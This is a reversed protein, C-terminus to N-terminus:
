SNKAVRRRPEPDKGKMVHEIGLQRCVKETLDARNLTYFHIHDVGFSLLKRCQDTAVKIAMANQKVPDDGANEFIKGLWDPVSAGCMASFKKAQAFNAIPMLGPVIPIKIGAKTTKEIFRFYHEVDFFYQTIARTAGANVKHKLYDIGAEISEAEPHKEPFAAVSIEFDNIRKLGAVLDAAYRYGKPHPLYAGGGPPDGRLAVIHRVGAQWYGRAIFDIEERSAAICTLHAAPKLRTEQLIREVMAHTRERTSGGAGYTVSVFTPKLPALRLVTDWLKKEMEPTKPPFFEFSVSPYPTISHHPSPSAGLNGKKEKKEM